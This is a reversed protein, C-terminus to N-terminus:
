TYIIEYQNQHKWQQTQFISHQRAGEKGIEECFHQTGM